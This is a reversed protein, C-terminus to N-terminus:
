ITLESILLDSSNLFHANGENHNTRDHSSTQQMSVTDMLDALRCAHM